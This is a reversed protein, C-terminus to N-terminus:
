GGKLILKDGEVNFGAIRRLFSQGLLNEGLKGPRAVLAEVNRRTITGVTLSDLTVPAYDTVGNATHTIGSYNLARVNIGVKAADEARLSVLTAGTDLMMALRVGNVAVDVTFHGNGGRRASADAQESPTIVVPMPAAPATLMQMVSPAAGSAPTIPSWYRLGATEQQSVAV